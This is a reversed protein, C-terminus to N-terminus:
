SIKIKIIINIQQFSLLETKAEDSKPAELLPIVDAEPAPVEKVLPNFVYTSFQPGEVVYLLPGQCQNEGPSNRATPEPTFRRAMLQQLDYATASCEGVSALVPPYEGFLQELIVENIVTGPTIPWIRKGVNLM